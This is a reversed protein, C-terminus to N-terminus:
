ITKKACILSLNLNELNNGSLKAYVDYEIKPTMRGEQIIDIKKMYLTENDSLNYHGRLLGECEDLDIETMNNTKNKINNLTTFTIKLKDTEIIEEEGKDLNSTDYYKSTFGSEISQLVTKYYQNEEDETNIEEELTTDNTELKEKKEKKEFNFLNKFIDNMNSSKKCQLKDQVLIPYDEPCSLNNTCFYNGEDDFYYYFSCNEFCNFYNIFSNGIPFDKNCKLCNQTIDDGKIECTECKYYCKKYVSDNKDLYYGDPNKYCNIYEGINSIDNEIQYYDNNCETCLKNNLAGLTCTLCKELECKCKPINNIDIYYGNACNKYCKGNYEYKYETENCSNICLGNEKIIKIQSLEWNTSCDKAFCKKAQIQPLIKTGINNENICVVVNDPVGDFMNSYYTPDSSLRAENFNNLNIYELNSCGYFMHNIEVVNDIEFHNLNLSTLSSCGYFMHNMYNVNNTVFNYYLHLNLSTLSSCGSFMANMYKVNSTHFYSLDLSILSSCYEFMATMDTVQSTQFQYLNLSTLSSCGYFMVAMNTVQSTEFSSFDIETIDACDYFMYFCNNIQNDWELIVTNDNDIFPYNYAIPTTQFIGNIKVRNPYYINKFEINSTFINKSGPGKIKLTIKEIKSILFYIKYTSIVQIIVNILIIINFMIVNHKKREKVINNIYKKNTAEKFNFNAKFNLEDKLLAM